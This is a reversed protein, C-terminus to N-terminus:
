VVSFKRRRPLTFLADEGGQTQGALIMAQMSQAINLGEKPPVAEQEKDDDLVFRMRSAPINIPVSTALLSVDDAPPDPEPDSPQTDDDSSVDDITPADQAEEEGIQEDLAFVDSGEEEELVTTTTRPPSRDNIAKDNINIKPPSQRYVVPGFRVSQAPRDGGDSPRKTAPRPIGTSGAASIGGSPPKQEAAGSSTATSVPAPAPSPTAPAESQNSTVTSPPPAPPAEIHSSTPTTLESTMPSQSPTVQLSDVDSTEQVPTHQIKLRQELENRITLYTIIRDKKARAQYEKLLEEQELTYQRIRDETAQQEAKISDRMVTDLEALIPGFLGRDADAPLREIFSAYNLCLKFIPSYTPRSRIRRHEEEGCALAMSVLLQGEGLARKERPLGSDQAAYVDMQCNKCRLIKWNEVTREQALYPQEMRVGGLAFRQISVRQFFADKEILHTLSAPLTFETLVTDKSMTYVSVNACDCSLFGM